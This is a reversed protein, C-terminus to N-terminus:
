FIHEAKRKPRWLTVLVKLDRAGQTHIEAAILACFADNADYACVPHSLFAESWGMFLTELRKVGM